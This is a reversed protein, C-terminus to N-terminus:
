SLNNQIFSRLQPLSPPTDYDAIYLARNTKPRWSVYAVLSSTPSTACYRSGFYKDAIITKLHGGTASARYLGKYEFYDEGRPTHNVPRHPWHALFLVSKGDHSWSPFKNYHDDPSILREKKTSLQYAYVGFNDLSDIRGDGNTDRRRSLYVLSDGDPSFAPYASSQIDSTIAMERGSHLNLLFITSNDDLTIRKSPHSAHRWSAFAVHSGDPSIQPYTHEWAHSLIARIKKAKLDILSLGSPGGHFEQTCVILREGDPLFVPYRPSFEPGCVEEERGSILDKVILRRQSGEGELTETRIFAIRQGDPAWTPTSHIATPAVLEEEDGTEVRFSYIGNLDDADIRGDDNTDQRASVYLVYDGQKSFVPSANHFRSSSVMWWNTMELIGRVIEPSPQHDVAKLLHQQALPINGKKFYIKGVEYHPEPSKPYRDAAAIFHALAADINGRKLLDYGKRLTMGFLM